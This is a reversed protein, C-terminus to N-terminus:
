RSLEQIIDEPTVKEISNIVFENRNFMVNRRARGSFTMEAGLLEQKKDLMFSSNQLNEIEEEKIKFLNTITENFAIARMSDSGDDIIISIIARKKPVVSNHKICMAKDGEYSVKMGCEPCTMFFNPQFIQLINGRINVREGSKLESIKKTILPEKIIKVAKIEKDSIEITSNSGLHLERMTTGRVDANKIEIVSDKKITNNKIKDIHHTDWLVVRISSTNDALLFSGIEGEHGARRYKRVPYVEMVKGIVHIKKMGILMDTVKFKQNEFSIGLEAAVVQAAGLTSILGSLKAKKAEVRREIEEKNLGSLHVIREILQQYTARIM